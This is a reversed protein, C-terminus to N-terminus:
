LYLEMDKEYYSRHIERSGFIFPPLCPVQVRVDNVSSGLDLVDALETLRGFTFSFLGM